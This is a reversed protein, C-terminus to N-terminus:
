TRIILFEGLLMYLRGSLGMKFAAISPTDDFNLGGLDLFQVDRKKLEQIATWLLLNTINVKRGVDENIGALYTASNGHVLVVIAGYFDEGGYAEVLLIQGSQFFLENLKELFTLDLGEFQKAKQFRLYREPFRQRGDDDNIKIEVGSKQATKLQNRWNGSLNRLLDSESFSIELYSSTWSTDSVRYVLRWPIWNLKGIEVNPAISIISLRRFIKSLSLYVNREDEHSIQNFFLPGRAVRSIRLLGFKHKDLIQILAIERDDKCAVFRRVQWGETLSKAEAYEWSNMLNSLQTNTLRENWSPLDDIQNFDVESGKFKVGLRKSKKIIQKPKISRHVPLFLQTERLYKANNSPENPLDPWTTVPFGRQQLLSFIRFVDEHSGKFGALYPVHRPDTSIVSQLRGASIEEILQVWVTNNIQRIQQERKLRNTTGPLGLMRDALSIKKSNDCYFQLSKVALLTPQPHTLIDPSTPDEYFNRLKRPKRFLGVSQILRKVLWLAEDIKPNSLQLDDKETAALVQSVWTEQDGFLHQHDSVQNPGTPRVVLIAGSPAALLKHPSYIVFDGISGMGATPRLVHACDEILWCGSNNAFMRLHIAAEAKNGFYHTFILLDPSTSFQSQLDKVTMGEALNIRYFTFTVGLKRLPDLTSSCFYDPVGIHLQQNPFLRKRWLAILYLSWMSRSLLGASDGAGCWPSLTVPLRPRRFLYLFQRFTINPVLTLM